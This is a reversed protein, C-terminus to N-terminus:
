ISVYKQEDLYWGKKYNNVKFISEHKVYIVTTFFFYIRLLENENDIKAERKWKWSSFINLGELIYLFGYFGAQSMVAQEPFLECQLVCLFIETCWLINYVPIEYLNCKFYKLANLSLFRVQIVLCM